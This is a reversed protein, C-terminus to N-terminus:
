QVVEESKEIIECRRMVARRACASINIGAKKARNILTEPIRITTSNKSKSAM